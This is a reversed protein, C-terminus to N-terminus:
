PVPGFYKELARIQRDNGDSFFNDHKLAVNQSAPWEIMPFKQPTNIHKAGAMRACWFFWLDDGNPALDLFLERKTAIPDLAGPPYLCGAGGTPFLIQTADAVERKATELEWEQYPALSGDARRKAVHMRHCPIVQGGPYCEILNKLWNRPYYLDDDATVLFSDPFSELAPVLKKYSKLDDCSRIELEFGTLGNVSAPLENIDDEALWLIVLDPPMTQDLLSKLTKDLDGFRAPYSTLTVILQRDLGHPLKHTEHPFREVAAIAKAQRRREQLARWAMQMRWKGPIRM